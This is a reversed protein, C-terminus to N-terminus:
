KSQQLPIGMVAPEPQMEDLVRQQLQDLKEKRLQISAADQSCPSEREWADMGLEGRVENLIQLLIETRNCSSAFSQQSADYANKRKQSKKELYKEYKTNRDAQMQETIKRAREYAEWLADHQKRLLKETRDAKSFLGGTPAATHRAFAADVVSM